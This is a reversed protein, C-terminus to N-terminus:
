LQLQENRNLITMWGLIKKGLHEFTQCPLSKTLIDTNQEKMDIISVHIIKNRVAERIHSCLQHRLNVHHFNLSRFFDDCCLARYFCNGDGSVDHLIYWRGNDQVKIAYDSYDGKMKIINQVCTVIQVEPISIFTCISM